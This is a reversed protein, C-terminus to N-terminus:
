DGWFFMDLFLTGAVNNELKDLGQSRRRPFCTANRISRTLRKISGAKQQRLTTFKRMQSPVSTIYYFQIGLEKM